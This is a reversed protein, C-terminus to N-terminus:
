ENRLTAPPTVAGGRLFVPEGELLLSPTQARFAAADLFVDELAALDTFNGPTMRARGDVVNDL